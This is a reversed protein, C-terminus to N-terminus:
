WLPPSEIGWSVNPGRRKIVIWKCCGRNDDIQWHEIQQLKPCTRAVEQITENLEEDTMMSGHIAWLGGGM